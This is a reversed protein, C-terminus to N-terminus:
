VLCLLFRNQLFTRCSTVSWRKKKTDTGPLELNSEDTNRATWLDLDISHRFSTRWDGSFSSKEQQDKRCFLQESNPSLVNGDKCAVSSLRYYYYLLSIVFCEYLVAFSFLESLCM